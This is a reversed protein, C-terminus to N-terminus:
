DRLGGVRNFPAQEVAQGNILEDFVL